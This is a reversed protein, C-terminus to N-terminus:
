YITLRLRNSPQRWFADSGVESLRDPTMNCKWCCGSKDAWGPLRFCSKYCLWDGRVEVVRGKQLDKGAHKKRWVDQNKQFGGDHRVGPMKGIDLQKFSWAVIEMLEDYTQNDKTMFKKPFAILPLRLDTGLLPFSM